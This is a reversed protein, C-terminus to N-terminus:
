GTMGRAIEDITVYHPVPSVDHKPLYRVSFSGDAQRMRSGIVRAPVGAVIASPPVDKTVVAGAAVVAYDGVTVGPCIVANALILAYKGITTVKHIPHQNAPADAASIHMYTLDPYGGAIVVHSSCGSHDEFIVEGGGANLHSFSAIHVHKGITVGKGGEIKVWRDIRATEAIKVREPKLIFVHEDIM